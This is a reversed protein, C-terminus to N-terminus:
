VPVIQDIELGGDDVGLIRQYANAPSTITIQRGPGLINSLFLADVEAKTYYETAPAPGASGPQTVANEITIPIVVKSRATSESWEIELYASVTSNSGVYSNMNAVNMALEGSFVNDIEDKTWSTQQVLVTADDLTDNISVTLALPSIDVRAFRNVGVATLDPEVITIALPVTEYKTFRPLQFPGGNRDSIQLTKTEKNVFLRRLATAPM